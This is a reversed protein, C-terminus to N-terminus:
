KEQSDIHALLGDGAPSRRQFDGIRRSEEASFGARVIAGFIREQVWDASEKLLELSNRDKYHGDRMILVMSM